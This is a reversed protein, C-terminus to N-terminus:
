IKVVVAQLSGQEIFQTIIILKNSEVNILIM